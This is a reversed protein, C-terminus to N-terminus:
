PWFGTSHPRVWYQDIWRDVVRDHAEGCMYACVCIYRRRDHCSSRGGLLSFHGAVKKNKKQKKDTPRHYKIQNNKEKQERSDTNKEGFFMHISTYQCAGDCM